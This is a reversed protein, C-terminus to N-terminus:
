KTASFDGKLKVDINIGKVKCKGDGSVNGSATTGDVKGTVGVTGNCEDENIPLNGAFSGDNSLGVTFTEDPEDGDFRVKGDETVTITIPYSEKASLGSAEASVNLTGTYKGFFNSPISSGPTTPEVQGGSDSSGGGCAVVLLCVFIIYINKM